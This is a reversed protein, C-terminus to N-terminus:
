LNAVGNSEYYVGPSEDYRELSDGLESLVAASLFVSVSLLIIAVATSNCGRGFNFVFFVIYKRGM